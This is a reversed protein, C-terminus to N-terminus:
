SKTVEDIWELYTKSGDKIPVFIIEPVEYSHLKKVEEALESFLLATTKAILFVEKEDCVKDKWWYISRIESLINVCSAMKKKVLHKAVREAEQMSSATMFVIGKDTM